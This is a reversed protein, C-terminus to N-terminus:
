KASSVFTTARASGNWCVTSGNAFGTGNVTLTFGASGPTTAGPVLPLNVFPVANLGFALSVSGVVILLVARIVVSRLTFKM